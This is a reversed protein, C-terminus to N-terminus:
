GTSIVKAVGEIVVRHDILLHGAQPIYTANCDPICEAMLKVNQIPSLTDEEGHWIHVATKLQDYQIGWPRMSLVADSIHGEGGTRAAEQLDRIVATRYEPQELLRRDSEPLQRLLSRINADPNSIMSKASQRILFRLLWPANRATWIGLRNAFAMGKAADPGDWPAATNFLMVSCVRGSLVTGCALAYPGGGSSGSVHFRDLGLFDALQLVDNTWDIMTPDPKPDSLGYGPREPLILKLGALNAIADQGTLCFRSGPTGHFFFLPVGEPDGLVRYGLSRGDELRISNEDASEAEKM